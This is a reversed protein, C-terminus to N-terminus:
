LAHKNLDVGVEGMLTDTQYRGDNRPAMGSCRSPSSAIRQGAGQARRETGQARRGAIQAKM